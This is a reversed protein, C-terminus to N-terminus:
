FLLSQHTAIHPAPFSSKMRLSHYTCSPTECAPWLLIPMVHLVNMRQPVLASPATAETDHINASTDLDLMPIEILIM